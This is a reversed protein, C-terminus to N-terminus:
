LLYNRFSIKLTNANAEGMPCNEQASQNKGALRAMGEESARPDVDDALRVFDLEFSCTVLNPMTAIIAMSAPFPVCDLPFKLRKVMGMDKPSESWIAWMPKDSALNSNGLLHLQSKTWLSTTRISPKLMFLEESGEDSDQDFDENSDVEDFGLDLSVFNIDLDGVQNRDWSNIYHFLIRIKEMVQSIRVIGNVTHWPGTKRDDIIIDLVELYGRRENKFLQKFKLVDEEISPDIRIMRFLYCEVHGQWEKSVSAFHAFYDHHEIAEDRIMERVHNPLDMYRHFEKTYGAQILEDSQGDESAMLNQLAEGLLSISDDNEAPEM